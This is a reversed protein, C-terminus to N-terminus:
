FRKVVFSRRLDTKIQRIQTRYKIVSEIKNECNVCSMGKIKLKDTRISKKM